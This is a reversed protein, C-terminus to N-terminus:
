LSPGCAHECEIEKEGCIVVSYGPTALVRLDLTPLLM